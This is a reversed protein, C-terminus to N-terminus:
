IKIIGNVIIRKLNSVTTYINIDGNSSVLIPIATPTAWGSGSGFGSLYKDGSPRAGSPLNAITVWAYTSYTNSSNYINIAINVFDNLKFSSNEDITFDSTLTLNTQTCKGDLNAIGADMKNLNEANVPTNTSPLNEWNVRTYAM